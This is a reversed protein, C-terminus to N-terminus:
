AAAGRPRRRRGRGAARDPRSSGSSSRESGTSSRPCSISSATSRALSPAIDADHFGRARVSAQWPVGTAAVGLATLALRSLREPRHAVVLVAAAVAFLAVDLVIGEQKIALAGAAFLGGLLLLDGRREQLWLGVALVAAVWCCALPVDAYAALVQTHLSPAAVLLCLAGVLLAADAHPRLLSWATALVAALMLVFQVHIMQADAGGMAHFDFAELAPLGIPYERHSVAYFASSMREDLGGLVLGGHGYLLKAKLSWNAYADFKVLPELAARLALPVLLVGVIAAALLGHGGAEPQARRARGRALAGAGLMVATIAAVVLPTPSVGAYILPPLLTAALACGTLLAPGIRSWPRLRDWTGTALLAGSGLLALLANAGLLGVLSRM